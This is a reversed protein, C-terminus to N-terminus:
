EKVAFVEIMNPETPLGDALLRRNRLNQERIKDTTGDPVNVSSTFGMKLSGANSFKSVRCEPPRTAASSTVSARKTVEERQKLILEKVNTVGQTMRAVLPVPTFLKEIPIERVPTTVISVQEDDM